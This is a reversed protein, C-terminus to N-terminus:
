PPQAGVTCATRDAAGSLWTRICVEANEGKMLQRGGEHFQLMLPKALVLLQTPDLGNALQGIKEPELGVISRYTLAIEDGTTPTTGPRIGADNDARLGTRGYVRLARATNGHCDLSGCRREFVAYAPGVAAQFQAVSPGNANVTAAPDPSSSCAGLMTAIAALPLLPSPRESM